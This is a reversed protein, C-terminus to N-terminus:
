LGFYDWLYSGERNEFQRRAITRFTESFPVYPKQNRDPHLFAPSWPGNVSSSAVPMIGTSVVPIIPLGTSHHHTFKRFGDCNAGFDEVKGGFHPAGLTLCSEIDACNDVQGFIMM